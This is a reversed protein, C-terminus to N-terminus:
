VGAAAPVSRGRRRARARHTISAAIVPEVTDTTPAPWTPEATGVCEHQPARTVPDHQEVAVGRARLPLRPVDGVGDRQQSLHVDLRGGVIGIEGAGVGHHDRHARRVGGPVAPELDESGVGVQDRADHAPEVADARLRDDDEHAIRNIHEGADRDLGRCPGAWRIM